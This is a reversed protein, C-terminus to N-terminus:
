PLGHSEMVVVKPVVAMRILLVEEEGRVKVGKM